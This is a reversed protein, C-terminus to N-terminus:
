EDPASPEDAALVAPRCGRVSNVCWVRTARQLDSRPVVREIIRGADLLEARLTGPLLGSTAPPTVLQGDLEVVLNAITTETVEDRENYLIADDCGPVERLARDYRDRLSTKFRLMPDRSDVPARAWGLRLPRTPSKPLAQSGCHPTGDRALTLRVRRPTTGSKVTDELLRVLATESFKFGFRNAAAAMRALHRSLLYFGRAPDWRLTELLEFESAVNRLVQAKAACEAWEKAVESDWVVGSGIGYEGRGSPKHILLTRIAVSFCAWRGPKITGIAGTYIRRPSSELQVILRMAAVKPAGTVSACPFLAGILETTSVRTTATVTSTMQWLTPYCEADFLSPVAVQGPPAVRGLDNRVMDVIMLNEAREKPSATLADSLARDALSDRGRPATGKMPRCTVQDGRRDFFLEPSVSCIAWDGTDVFAAYPTPQGHALACFWQWPEGLGEARLRYSFNVQYNEGWRQGRHIRNLVQDYRSAHLERHWDVAELPAVPAPAEVPEAQRYLAFWLLPFERDERVCRAADFAAAAEYSIFGVATYGRQEVAAEVRRLTPLVEALTRAEVVEVPRSYRVWANTAVDFQVAEGDLVTISM